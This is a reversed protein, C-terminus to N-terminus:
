ENAKKKSRKNGRGKKGREGREGNGEKGTGRKGREGRKWNGEKETGNNEWGLRLGTEKKVQVVKEEEGNGM